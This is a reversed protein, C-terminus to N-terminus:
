KQQNLVTTFYTSDEQNNKILLADQLLYIIKKSVNMRHDRDYPSLKGSAVQAPYHKQMIKYLRIQETIMMELTITATTM